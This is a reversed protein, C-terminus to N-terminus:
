KINLQTELEKLEKNNYFIKTKIDKSDKIKNDLEFRFKYKGFNGTINSAIFDYKKGKNDEVIVKLEEYDKNLEGKIYISLPTVVISEVNVGDESKDVKYEKIDERLKENSIPINFKWNAEKGDIDKNINIEINFDKANKGIFEKSINNDIFKKSGNTNLIDDLWGEEVDYSLVGIQNGEEDLNWYEGSSTSVSKNNIKIKTEGLNNTQLNFGKTDILHQKDNEAELKYAINIKYGDFVVSTITVKMGESSQAENLGTAYKNYNDNFGLFSYVIDKFDRGTAYSTFTVGFSSFVIFGIAAVAVTRKWRNNKKKDNLLEEIKKDLNEPIEKIEDNVRNKLKKDFNDM